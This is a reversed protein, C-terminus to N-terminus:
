LLDELRWLGLSKDDYAGGCETCGEAILRLPPPFSFPPRELNLPRWDGDAIDANKELEPFTTTLLFRADCTKMNRLAAEINCFSLHVLCDRCLILDADALPDCTLDLPVFRREPYRVRNREVLEPVIDAGVYPVGLDVRSLWEFDGCPVDLLSRIEFDALMRPIERRLVDTEALSSGVGSCSELGGWLNHQYIYAFREAPALSLLIDESERFRLQALVPPRNEPHSL